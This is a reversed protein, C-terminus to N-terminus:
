LRPDSRHFIVTMNLAPDIRNFVSLGLIVLSGTTSVAIVLATALYSSVSHRSLYTTLGNM